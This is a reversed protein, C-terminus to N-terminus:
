ALSSNLYEFSSKRLASLHERSNNFDCVDKDLIGNLQNKNSILRTGLGVSTLFSTVRNPSSPPLTAFFSREFNVSFAAGHFSNTIVLEANLLLSLFFEPSASRYHQTVSLNIFPDQDVIVIDIGLKKSFFNVTEIFLADREIAYLFIYENKNVKYNLLNLMDIWQNKSLLLTPDLVHSVDRDLIKSVDIVSDSERLSLKDFSQLAVMLEDEDSVVYSGISSAYSIKRKSEVFNLLYISDFEGNEGLVKPNWVQDSGTIFVDFEDELCSLQSRDFIHLNMRNNIFKQFKNIVRYRPYLRFLDKAIRLIDRPNIGFRILQMHKNIFKNRYDLIKVEGFNELSKQTAYSQLVGGYNTSAHITVLCIKV